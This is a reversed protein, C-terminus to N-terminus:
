RSVEMKKNEFILRDKIKGMQEDSKVMEAFFDDPRRFPIKCKESYKEGQEVGRIAMDYFAVERKIDDEVENQSLSLPGGSVVFM